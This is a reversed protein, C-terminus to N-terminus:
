RREERVTSRSQRPGAAPEREVEDIVSMDIVSVFSIM